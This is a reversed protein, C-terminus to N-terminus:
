ILICSPGGVTCAVLADEEVVTQSRQQRTAGEGEEEEPMEETTHQWTESSHKNNTSM